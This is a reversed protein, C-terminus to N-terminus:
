ATKNSFFGSVAHYMSPIGHLVTGTLAAAGAAGALAIAAPPFATSLAYAGATLVGAGIQYKINSAWHEGFKSFHETRKDLTPKQSYTFEVVDQNPGANIKGQAEIHCTPQKAATAQAASLLIPKNAGIGSIDSM